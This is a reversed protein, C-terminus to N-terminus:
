RQRHRAYRHISSAALGATLGDAAGTYRDYRIGRAHIAPHQLGCHSNLDFRTSVGRVISGLQKRHSSRGRGGAFTAERQDGSIPLDRHRPLSSSQGRWASATLVDWQVNM